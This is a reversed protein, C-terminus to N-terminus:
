KRVASGTQPMAAQVARENEHDMAVWKEYLGRVNTFYIDKESTNQIAIYYYLMQVLVFFTQHLSQFVVSHDAVGTMFNMSFYELSNLTDIVISDFEFWLAELLAARKDESIRIANGDADKQEYWEAEFEGIIQPNIHHLPKSSIQDYAYRGGILAKITGVDRRKAKIQEEINPNTLRLLESKTFAKINDQHIGGLCEMIGTKKLIQNIYNVSPLIENKYFVSLEIAKEKEQWDCNYQYTKRLLRTQRAVLLFSGVTLIIEIINARLLADKLYLALGDM